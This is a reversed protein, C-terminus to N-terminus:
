LIGLCKIPSGVPPVGEGEYSRGGKGRKPQVLLGPRDPLLRKTAFKRDKFM